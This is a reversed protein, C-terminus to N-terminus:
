RPYLYVSRCGFGLILRVKVRYQVTIGLNELQTNKDTVSFYYYGCYYYYYLVKLDTATLRSAVSPKFVPTLELGTPLFHFPPTKYFLPGKRFVPHMIYLM